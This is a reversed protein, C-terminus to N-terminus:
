RLLLKSVACLDANRGNFANLFAAAEIQVRKDGQQTCQILQM